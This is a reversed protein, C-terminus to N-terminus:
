PHMPQQQQLPQQQLYEAAGKLLELAEGVVESHELKALLVEHNATKFHRMSLKYLELANDDNIGALDEEWAAHESLAAQVEFEQLDIEERRRQEEHKARMARLQEAARAAEVRLQEILKGKIQLIEEAEEDDDEEEEGEEPALEEKLELSHSGLAPGPATAITQDPASALEVHSSPFRV